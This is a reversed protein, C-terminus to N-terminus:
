QCLRKIAEVYDSTEEALKLLDSKRTKKSEYANESNGMNNSHNCNKAM